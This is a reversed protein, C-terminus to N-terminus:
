IHILSLDAVADPPGGDEDTDGDCDNDLGDCPDEAETTPVCVPIDPETDEIDQEVATDAETSTDPEVFVDMGADEAESDSPTADADFGEPPFTANYQEETLKPPASVCGVALSTILARLVWRRTEM